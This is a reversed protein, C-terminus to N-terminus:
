RKGDAVGRSDPYFVCLHSGSSFEACAGSTTSPRAKRSALDQCDAGVSFQRKGLLDMVFAGLSKRSGAEDEPCGEDEADEDDGNAMGVADAGKLIVELEAPLHAGDRAGKGGAVAVGVGEHSVGSGGGPDRREIWKEHGSYKLDGADVACQRCPDKEGDVADEGGRDNGGDVFDGSAAVVALDCDPGGPQPAKGPNRCYAMWQTHSIDRVVISKENTKTRASRMRLM